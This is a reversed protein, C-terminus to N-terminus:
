QKELLRKMLDETRIWEVKDSLHERIRSAALELARLGTRTGNSFMSQWHTLFVICQDQELSRLIAGEKGDATILQDAIASIYEPSTDPCDITKWLLDSVTCRFHVLRKGGEGSVVRPCYGPIKDGGHLAYWVDKQGFVAEMADSLALEYERQVDAGFRWPSSIGTINLGAEKLIALARTIYPTLTQRTQRQSWDTENQDGPAEKTLDWFAAHTLMEPSLSFNPVVRSRVTELWQRIDEAPYGPIGKSIEGLCGPMPVVSLKGKIGFRETVSCFDDLFDNPVDKLIPRGDATFRSKAHTYYVSICPCGDDILLCIPVKKM